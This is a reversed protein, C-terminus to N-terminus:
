SELDDLRGELNKVWPGMVEMNGKMIAESEQIRREVAKLGEKWQDIEKKMDAQRQVLSDLDESASAAGAHITRLSRLRELVAPLLPHLSTITPLTTYLAHIKATQEMAAADSEVAASASLSPDSLAPQDEPTATAIRATLAARAADTARQRAATLAEADATLKRIKSSLAEIHPTTTLISSLPSTSTPDNNNSNNHPILTSHLTSLQSSLHNLSPLIPQINMDSPDDPAIPVPTNQLGLSTELLTLRAEFSATLSLISPSDQVSAQMIESPKPTAGGNPLRPNSGGAVLKQSLLEEASRKDAGYGRTSAHLSDLIRSLEMISDVDADDQGGAAQVGETAYQARRQALDEKLEEAERRLRALRRDLNEDEEDSIDGLIETGDERIRSRRITRYSKRKSAISDSFDVDRADIRAPEFHSRADDVRLRRGDIEPNSSFEPEFPSPSRITTGPLTSDDTLDPTEYIDPALDLDPLGAYKKNFAM